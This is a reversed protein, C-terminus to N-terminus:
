SKEKNEDIHQINDFKIEVVSRCKKCKIFVARCAATSPEYKALRQGCSPCCFWQM